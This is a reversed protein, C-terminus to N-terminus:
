GLSNTKKILEVQEVYWEKRAKDRLFWPLVRDTMVGISEAEELNSIDIKGIYLRETAYDHSELWKLLKIVARLYVQDKTFAGKESTDKMGRKVRLCIRWRREKDDILKELRKFLQTFSMQSAWYVAAYHVATLWILKHESTLHQHLIALGEETELYNDFHVDKKKELWPQRLENVRRFYHTGIEHDLVGPFTLRRYELPLRINLTEKYVSTRSVYNTGFQVTLKKVDPSNTFYDNIQQVVETKTLIEGEHQIFSSENPWKKLVTQIIKEAIDMYRDEVEGHKELDHEGIENDYTFQPNYEQDFFFKQKESPTNNPQVRRVLPIFIKKSM